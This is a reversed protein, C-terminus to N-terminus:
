FRSGRTSGYSRGGRDSGGSRGGRFNGGGGFARSSSSGGPATALEISVRRNGFMEGKLGMITDTLHAPAEIFAFKEKAEIRGIDRGSVGLASAVFKLLEGSDAGDM